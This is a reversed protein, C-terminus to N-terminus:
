IDSSRLYKSHETPLPFGLQQGLHAMYPHPAGGAAAAAAMGLWPYWALHAPLAKDLFYGAYGPHLMPPLFPHKLPLEHAKAPM